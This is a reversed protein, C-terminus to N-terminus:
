SLLANMLNGTGFRRVRPSTGARHATARHRATAAEEKRTEEIFAATPRTRLADIREDHTFSIAQDVQESADPTPEPASPAAESAQAGDDPADLEAITADAESVETADLKAHANAAVNFASEQAGDAVDYEAMAADAITAGAEWTEGRAHAADNDYGRTSESSPLRGVIPVRCVVRVPEPPRSLRVLREVTRRTAARSSKSLIPPRPTLKPRMAVTRGAEPETEKAQSLKSWNWMDRLRAYHRFKAKQFADGAQEPTNPSRPKGSAAFELGAHPLRPKPHPVDADSSVPDDMMRDLALLMSEHEHVRSSRPSQKEKENSEGKRERKLALLQNYSSLAISRSAHAANQEIEIASGEVLQLGPPGQGFSGQSPSGVWPTTRSGTTSAAYLPGNRRAKFSPLRASSHLDTTIALCTSRINAKGFDDRKANTNDVSTSVHQTIRVQRQLPKHAPHGAALAGRCQKGDVGLEDPSPTRGGLLPQMLNHANLTPITAPLSVSPVSPGDCAPQFPVRKGLDTGDTALADADPALKVDQSPLVAATRRTEPHDLTDFHVLNPRRQMLVRAAQEITRRDHEQRLLTAIEFTEDLHALQLQQVDDLKSGAEILVERRQRLKVIATAVLESPRTIELQQKHALRTEVKHRKRAHLELARRHAAELERQEMQWVHRIEELQHTHVLRDFREERKTELKMRSWREAKLRGGVKSPNECNSATQGTGLSFTARPLLPTRTPSARGTGVPLAEAEDPQPGREDTARRSPAEYPSWCGVEGEASSLRRRHMATSRRGKSCVNTVATECM